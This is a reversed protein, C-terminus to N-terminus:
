EPRRQRQHWRMFSMPERWPLVPAFWEPFRSDIRARLAAPISTLAANALDRTAVSNSRLTLARFRSGSSELKWVAPDLPHPSDVRTERTFRATGGSVLWESFSGGATFM